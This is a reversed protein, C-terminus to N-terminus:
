TEASSAAATPNDSGAMRLVFALYNKFGLQFLGKEHQHGYRRCNAQVMMRPWTKHRERFARELSALFDGQLQIAMLDGVCGANAPNAMAAEFDQAHAGRDFAQSMGKLDFLDQNWGEAQPQYWMNLGDLRMANWDAKAYAALRNLQDIWIQRLQSKQTPQDAM